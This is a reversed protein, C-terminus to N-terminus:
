QAEGELFMAIATEPGNIEGCSVTRLRLMNWGGHLKWELSSDKVKVWKSGDRAVEYAVRNPCYSDLSLDIAGAVPILQAEVIGVTWYADEIRRRPYFSDEYTIAYQTCWFKEGRNALKLIEIADSPSSRPTGGPIQRYVWDKLELQATWEDKAGAVVETLRYKRRPTELLADDYKFATFPFRSHVAVPIIANISRVRFGATEAAMKLGKVDLNAGLLAAALLCVPWPKPM